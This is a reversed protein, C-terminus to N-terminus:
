IRNITLIVSPSQAVDGTVALTELSVTTGTAQWYLQLYDGAALTVYQNWGAILHGDVSGHKKQVTVRGASNSLTAGNKKLWFYVDHESSDTNLLQASFQVNYDGAYSVTLKSSNALTVGKLVGTGNFTVLQSTNAAACPQDTTDVADGYWHAYGTQVWASNTFLYTDRTDTAVWTTGDTPAVPRLALKGSQVHITSDADHANFANAVINDNTRITNADLEGKFNVPATLTNVTYQGLQGSQLTLAAAQGGLTYQGRGGAMIKARSLVASQGTLSYAGAASPIRRVAAVGATQGTLTFAGASATRARSFGAAKGTLAYSATNAIVRRRVILRVSEGTSSFAGANSPLRRDRRLTADQGALTFSGAQGSRDIALGSASGTLTFAGASASLTLAGLASFPISSFPATSFM